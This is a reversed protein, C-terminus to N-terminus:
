SVSESYEEWLKRRIEKIEQNLKEPTIDKMSDDLAIGEQIERLIMENITKRIAYRIFDSKSQFLGDKVFHDVMLTDRPPLRISSIDSSM